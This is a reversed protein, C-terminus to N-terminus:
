RGGYRAAREKDRKRQNDSARQLTKKERGTLSQMGSQSVKELIRDVAQQEDIEEQLARDGQWARLKMQQRVLLPGGLWPAFFGFALGGLHAANSYDHDGVITLLYLIAHNAHSAIREWLPTGPLAPPAPTVVRWLARVVTLLLIVYGIDAHISRHFFRDARPAFHNMWIGYALMPPLRRRLWNAMKDEAPRSVVYTPSRQLMVVHKATKAMEPVITVATAGSGIVVVNKGAYDLDEPWLQPHILKGGFTSLGPFDPMYGGEYRYYGACMFLFSCTFAVTEKTDRNAGTEATVTWRADQSSWDARVVRHRFHIHKDIGAESATARVYKLISPGDAIAKAERWPRFSYGLTYMDSDSRIGPYRFLDWTGGIAGRGELIAYTKGPCKAQLHYGAGIGSLGAGVIIVDFHEMM